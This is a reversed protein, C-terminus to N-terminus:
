VDKSLIEAAPSPEAELARPEAITSPHHRTIAASRNTSQAADIKEKKPENVDMMGSRQMILVAAVVLVFIGLLYIKFHKM